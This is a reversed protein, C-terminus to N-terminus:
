NESFWNKVDKSLANLLFRREDDSLDALFGAYKNFVAWYATDAIVEIRSELFRKRQSDKM